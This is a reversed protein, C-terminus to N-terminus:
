FRSEQYINASCTKVQQCRNTVPAAPPFSTLQCPLWIELRRRWQGSNELTKIWCTPTDSGANQLQIKQSTYKAWHGFCQLFQSHQGTDCNITLYCHNDHIWTRLNYSNYDTDWIDCTEVGPSDKWNDWDDFITEITETTFSLFIILFKM